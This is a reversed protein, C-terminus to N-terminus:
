DPSSISINPLWFILWIWMWSGMELVMEEAPLPSKSWMRPGRPKVRPLSWRLLIIFLTPMAIILLMLTSQLPNSDRLRVWLAILPNYLVLSQRRHNAGEGEEGGEVTLSSSRRSVPLSLFLSLKSLPSPPPFSYFLVVSLFGPGRYIKWYERGKDLKYYGPPWKSIDDIKAPWYCGRIHAWFRPSPPPYRSSLWHTRSHVHLRFLSQLDLEM